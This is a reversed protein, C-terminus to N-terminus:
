FSGEFGLEDVKQVVLQLHLKWFRQLVDGLARQKWFSRGGLWV